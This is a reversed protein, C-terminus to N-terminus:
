PLGRRLEELPGRGLPVRETSSSACAGAVGDHDWAVGVAPEPEAPLRVIHHTNQDQDGQSEDPKASPIASVRHGDEREGAKEAARPSAVCCHVWPLLTGPKTQSSAPAPTAHEAFAETRPRASYWASCPVIGRCASTAGAAAFTTIAKASCRM